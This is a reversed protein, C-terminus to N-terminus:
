LRAGLIELEIAVVIVLKYLDKRVINHALANKKKLKNWELDQQFNELAVVQRQGSRRSLACHAMTGQPPRFKLLERSM